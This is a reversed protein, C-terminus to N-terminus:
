VIIFRSLLQGMIVRANMGIIEKVIKQHSDLPSVIRKLSFRYILRRNKANRASHLIREGDYSM